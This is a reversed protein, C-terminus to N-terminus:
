IGDARSIELELVPRDPERHTIRVPFYGLEEAFWIVTERRASERRRRVELVTFTGLATELTEEGVVDFVYTKLEGDDAIPYVLHRKGRRLDRILMLVYSLKDLTGEPVKMVWPDEAVANAAEGSSWDFRVSIRRRSEGREREYSYALPRVGGDVLRVESREVITEPHIKSLLGLTRSHSEYILRDTDGARLSWRAEAVKVGLARVDFDADFRSPFGSTSPLATAATAAVGAIWAAALLSRVAPKV